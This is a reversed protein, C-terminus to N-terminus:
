GDRHDLRDLLQRVAADPSDVERTEDMPTWSMDAELRFTGLFEHPPRGAWDAPELM